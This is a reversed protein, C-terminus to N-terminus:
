AEPSILNSFIGEAITRLRNPPLLEPRFQSELVLGSLIGGLAALHREASNRRTKTLGKGFLLEIFDKSSNAFLSEYLRLLKERAEPHRVAYLKYELNLIGWSPDDIQGVAWSIFLNLKREPDPEGELEARMAAFQTHVRHEVLGLFVEEKNIYHAYIAGRSCGAQSAVLDLNANEFGQQVFVALAADLIKAKTAETRAQPKRSRTRISGHM